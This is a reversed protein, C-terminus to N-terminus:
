REALLPARVQSEHERPRARRPPTVRERLREDGPERIAVRPHAGGGTPRERRLAHVVLRLREEVPERLLRVFRRAAVGRQDGADEEPRPREVDPRRPGEVAGEAPADLARQPPPEIRPHQRLLQLPPQALLASTERIAAVRLEGREDREGEVQVVDVAEPRP